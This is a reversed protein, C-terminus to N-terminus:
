ICSTIQTPGSRFQKDILILPAIPTNNDSQIFSCLRNWGRKVNTVVDKNTMLEFELLI